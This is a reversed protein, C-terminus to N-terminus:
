APPLTVQNNRTPEVNVRPFDFLEQLLLRLDLLRRHSAHRIARPAFNGHRPNHRLVTEIGRFHFFAAARFQSRELDGSLEDLDVAERAVREALYLLM